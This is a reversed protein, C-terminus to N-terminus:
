GGARARQVTVCASEPGAGTVAIKLCEHSEKSSVRSSSPRASFVRTMKVESLPTTEVPPPLSEGVADVGKEHLTVGVERRFVGPELTFEFLPLNVRASPTTLM